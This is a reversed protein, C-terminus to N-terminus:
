SFPSLFILHKEVNTGLPQSDLIIQLIIIVVARASHWGTSSSPLCQTDESRVMITLHPVTGSHCTPLSVESLNLFGHRAQKQLAWTRKRVSTGDFLKSLHSQTLTDKCGKGLSFGRFSAPRLCSPGCVADVGTHEKTRTDTNTNM